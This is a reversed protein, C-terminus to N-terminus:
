VRFGIIIEWVMKYALAKFQNCDNEHKSTSSEFHSIFM